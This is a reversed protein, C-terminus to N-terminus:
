RINEYVLTIIMIILGTCDCGDICGRLWLGNKLGMNINLRRLMGSLAM